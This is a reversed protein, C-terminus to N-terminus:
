RTNITTKIWISKRFGNEKLIKVYQEAVKKSSFDGVRVRFFPAEYIVYVNLDVKARVKEAYKYAESEDSFIDIQVRYGSTKSDSAASHQIPTHDLTNNKSSDTSESSTQDKVEPIGTYNDTSSRIPTHEEVNFEDGLIFPDIDEIMGNRGTVSSSTMKGGAGCGMVNVLIFCMCIILFIKASKM